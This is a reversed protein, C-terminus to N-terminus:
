RQSNQLATYGKVQNQDLPYSLKQYNIGYYDPDANGFYALNIKEINNDQMYKKLRKLDQGWDINSDVLYNWGNKAGKVLENFYTLQYPSILIFAAFYWVCCIGIIIKTWLNKIIPSVALSGISLFIFPYIPLAYRLGINIKNIMLVIIFILPPVIFMLNKKWNQFKSIMWSIISFIFLM